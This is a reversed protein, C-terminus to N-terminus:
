NDMVAVQEGSGGTYNGWQKWCLLLEWWYWWGLKGVVTMLRTCGSIDGVRNGWRKRQSLEEMLALLGTVWDSGGAWYGM